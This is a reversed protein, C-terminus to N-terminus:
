SFVGPQRMGSVTTNYGTPIGKANTTYYFWGNDNYTNGSVKKTVSNYWLGRTDQMASLEPDSLLKGTADFVALPYLTNGAFAAYYKKVVPDWCVSGGNSGANDDSSERPMKLEMVKKLTRSQAGAGTFSAAFLLM